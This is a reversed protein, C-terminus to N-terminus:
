LIGPMGERYRRWELIQAVTRAARAVSPFVGIGEKYAAEFFGDSAMGMRRAMRGSRFIGVVPTGTEDQLARLQRAAKATKEEMSKALEEADPAGDQDSAPQRRPPRGMMPGMFVMDIGEATAVIQLMEDLRDEPPMADIPNNVSSGAVPIFERMRQVASAPMRPVTLGERDIADSSLVAFGGGGGGILAVGRGKVQCTNTSAAVVLDHLEDMTEARIAGAQRCVADFVAASGALSGTHSHAARSGSASLGGKLIITRKVRACRQLADFFARGDKVGEVYAAVVQTEPDSAAYDLFDHAQLDAGNGYSIVKSFRVGRGSLESVIEGANAGSQSLLLVNGPEMSFGEMFALRSAPVYLGMCNPGIARIGASKLKAMMQREIEAMQEDGTESFGATFFHIARVKKAICQDVLEPAAPAPVQSIVYDIPDPIDILSPYCRVGDIDDVKPNVPYLRGIEPYGAEKLSEYFGGFGGRRSSPVGIVAVSSPHFIPDLPHTSM